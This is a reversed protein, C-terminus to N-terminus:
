CSPWGRASGSNPYFTGICIPRLNLGFEPEARPHGEQQGSVPPVINDVGIGARGIIKLSEAAELLDATVRTASRVILGDYSPLETRLADPSMATHVTVAVNPHAELMAVGNAAIDDTILIHPKDAM